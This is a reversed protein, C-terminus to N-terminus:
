TPRTCMCLQVSFNSTPENFTWKEAGRRYRMNAAYSGWYVICKQFQCLFNCLIPPYFFNGWGPPRFNKLIHCTIYRKLPLQFHLDITSNIKPNSSMRVWGYCELCVPNPHKPHTRIEDFGFIFPETSKCKGNGKFSNQFFKTGM